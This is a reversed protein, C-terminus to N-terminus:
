EIIYLYTWYIAIYTHVTAVLSKIIIAVFEILVMELTYIHIHPVSYFFLLSSSKACIVKKTTKYYLIYIRYM